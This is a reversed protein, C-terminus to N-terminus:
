RILMVANMIMEMTLTLSLLAMVGPMKVITTTTAKMKMM